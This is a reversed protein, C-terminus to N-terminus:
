FQKKPMVITPLAGSGHLEVRDNYLKLTGHAVGVDPNTEIVGPLTIHHIGKLDRLYCFQHCHGSLYALVCSYKHVITLIAEYNWCLCVYLYDITELPHHGLSDSYLFFKNSNSQLYVWCHLSQLLLCCHLQIIAPASGCLLLFRSYKVNKRFFACKKKKRKSYSEEALWRLGVGLETNKESQNWIENWIRSFKYEDSLRATEIANLWSGSGLMISAM